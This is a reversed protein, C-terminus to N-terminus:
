RQVGAPASAAVGLRAGLRQWVASVPDRPGATVTVWGATALMGANRLLPADAAPPAAAERGSRGAPQGVRWAQADLLVAIGRNGPPLARSVDPIDRPDLRGLVAILLGPQRTVAHTAQTLRRQSSPSLVALQDLVPAAQAQPSLTHDHWTAAEVDPHDTLLRV